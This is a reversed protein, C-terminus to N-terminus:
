ALELSPGSLHGSGLALLTDDDLCAM